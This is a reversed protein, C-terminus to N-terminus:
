TVCPFPRSIGREGQRGGVEKEAACAQQMKHSPPPCENSLVAQQRPTPRPFKSSLYVGGPANKQHGRRYLYTCSISVRTRAVALCLLMSIQLGQITSFMDYMSQVCYSNPRTCTHVHGVIHAHNCMISTVYQIYLISRVAATATDHSLGYRTQVTHCSAFRRWGHLCVGKYLYIYTIHYTRVYM